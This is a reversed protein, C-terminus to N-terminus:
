NFRSISATVSPEFAKTQIHVCNIVDDASMDFADPM